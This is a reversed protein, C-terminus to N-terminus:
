WLMKGQYYDLVKTRLLVDYKAIILNTNARDVNNKAILYDVQTSAGANFTVEAARFSETFDAVQEVLKQYREYAAMMNFHAQEINQRLEINTSEEMYTSNKLAIKALALQYKARFSNFLPISIGVSVSTGYNNNFQNFYGIKESNSNRQSTYVPIKNGSLEVYDGSAVQSTNLFIDKRAASSYNTLLNGYLGLTPYFFSKAVKIGKEYSKRRLEAAKVLALQQSAVQYIQDPSSQYANFQDATITEVQLNKDYPVNMLQALTLKAGNLTNQTNIISLEDNALQGKLDYLQAPAIAGDKNLIDSRQVQNRTVGAQKLAQSLQDENNLIQLYALIVNLTINDKIQQLEMKSAEYGLQDQKISNHLRGGNFLTVGTNLNFNASNLQQNIYGNTIPDISRGQITGNNLSANLNPIIDARSQKLYVNETQMQLDSQKVQLNNAIATEVAQRLSLKSDQARTILFLFVVFATSLFRKM